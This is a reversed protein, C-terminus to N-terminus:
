IAIGQPVLPASKQTADKFVLKKKGNPNETLDTLTPLNNTNYRIKRYVRAEYLGCVFSTIKLHV